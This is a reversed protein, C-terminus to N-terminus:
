VKWGAVPGTYLLDIVYDVDVQDPIDPNKGGLKSVESALLHLCVMSSISQSWKTLDASHNNVWSIDEPFAEKAKENGIVITEAGQKQAYDFVLRERDNNDSGCVIVVADDECPLVLYTYINKQTQFHLM